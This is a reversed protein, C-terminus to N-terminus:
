DYVVGTIHRDPAELTGNCKARITFFSIDEDCVFEIRIWLAVGVYSVQHPGNPLAAVM